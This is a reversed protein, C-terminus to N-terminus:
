SNKMVLEIITGAYSRFNFQHHNILFFVVNRHQAYGKRILSRSFAMGHPRLPSRIWAIQTCFTICFFLGVSFYKRKCIFLRARIIRCIKRKWGMLAIPMRRSFIRPVSDDWPYSLAHAARRWVWKMGLESLRSMAYGGGYEQSIHM